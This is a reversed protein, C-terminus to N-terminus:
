AANNTYSIMNDYVSDATNPCHTNKGTDIVMLVRFKNMILFIYCIIKGDNLRFIELLNHKVHYNQYNRVM